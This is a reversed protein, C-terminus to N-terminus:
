FSGVKKVTWPVGNVGGFITGHYPETVQTGLALYIYPLNTEGEDLFSKNEPPMWKQFNSLHGQLKWFNVIKLFTWFLGLIHRFIDQTWIQCFFEISLTGFQWKSFKM